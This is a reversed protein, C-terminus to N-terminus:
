TASSQAWTRHNGDCGPEETLAGPHTGWVAAPDEQQLSNPHNERFVDFQTGAASGILLYNLFFISLLIYKLM